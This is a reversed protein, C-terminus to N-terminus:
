RGFAKALFGAGGGTPRDQRAAEGVRGRPRRRRGRGQGLVGGALGEVAQKRWAAIMTQHVGHKTALQSLTLEGKLAELAVKAKFDASYRKRKGTM